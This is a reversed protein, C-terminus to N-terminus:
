IIGLGGRRCEVIGMHLGAVSWCGTVVAGSGGYCMDTCGQRGVNGMCMNGAGCDWQRGGGCLCEWLVGVVPSGPVGNGGWAPPFGLRAGEMGLVEGQALVAFGVCVGM